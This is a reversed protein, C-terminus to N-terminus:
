FRSFKLGDVDFISAGTRQAKSQAAVPPPREWLPDDPWQTKMAEQFDIEEREPGRKPAAGDDSCRAAGELGRRAGVWACAAVDITTNYARRRRPETCQWVATAGWLAGETWRALDGILGGHM